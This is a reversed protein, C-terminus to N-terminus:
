LDNRLKAKVLKLEDNSGTLYGNKFVEELVQMMAKSAPPHFKSTDIRELFLVWAEDARETITFADSM